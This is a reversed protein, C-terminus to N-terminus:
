AGEASRAADLDDALARLAKALSAPDALGEPSCEVMAVYAPQYPAVQVRVAARVVDDVAHYGSRYEVTTRGLSPRAPQIKLADM